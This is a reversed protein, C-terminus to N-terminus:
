CVSVTSLVMWFGGPVPQPPPPHPLREKFSFVTGTRSFVIGAPSVTLWLVMRGSLPSWQRSLMVVSQPLALSLTLSESRSVATYSGDSVPSSTRLPSFFISLLHPTSMTKTQIGGLLLAQSLRRQAPLKNQFIISRWFCFHLAQSPPFGARLHAVSRILAKSLHPETGSSGVSSGRLMCKWGLVTPSRSIGQSGAGSTWPQGPRPMVEAANGPKCVGLFSGAGRTM